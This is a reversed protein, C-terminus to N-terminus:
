GKPFLGNFPMGQRPQAMMPAVTDRWRLYHATEKHAAAAAASVYAEYLIFRTPDGPDQLVDFRRNGTERVSHEHNIRTAEIFAATFEPKVAVHVLTVHM